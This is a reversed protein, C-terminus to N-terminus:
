SRRRNLMVRILFVSRTSADEVEKTIGNSTKNVGRKGHPIRAVRQVGFQYLRGVPYLDETGHIPQVDV